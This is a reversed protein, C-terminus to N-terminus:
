SAVETLVRAVRDTTTAWGSLARRRERAAARLHQRVDPDTLWGRLAVALAQPDGPPVLLGPQRGAATRGLAEPLGGVDTAIVPLGRALAEAVVMGYTEAHSALVLADAAAYAADLERGTRPGAFCVRSGLGAADLRRRLARVFEPERDLTGVCVCRWPLDAVAALAAVLVDHGKHATVAAVCLLQGGGTTGSAEDAPDVGPTAV